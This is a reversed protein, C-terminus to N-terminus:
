LKRPTQEGAPVPTPQPVPAPAPPESPSWRLTRREKAGEGLLTVQVDEEPKREQLIRRVDAASYVPKGNLEILTDGRRLGLVQAITGPEIREVRLGQEPQLGAAQAQEATLKQSYIGLVDTPPQASARQTRLWDNQPMGDHLFFWNQGPSGHLDFGDGAGLKDRLEPYNRLLEDMDKAKYTKTERNGDVDQTSELTVGDPGVQLSYGRSQSSAGPTPAPLAPRQLGQPGQQGRLMEGMQAHLDEFMSDMGGFNQELSDFRRRLDDLGTRPVLAGSPTSQRLERLALRATWALEGADASRSWEELTSRLADDGRARQVLESYAQERQDLDAAGLRLKWEGLATAQARAPAAPAAPANQAPLRTLKRPAGGPQDQAFLGLAGLPALSCLIWNLNM